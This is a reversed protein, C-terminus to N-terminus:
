PEEPADHRLGPRLRLALRRWWPLADAAYALRGTYDATEEAAWTIRRAYDSTDAAADALRSLTNGIDTGQDQCTDRLALVAYTVAAFGRAIVYATPEDRPGIDELKRLEREALDHYGGTKLPWAATDEHASTM